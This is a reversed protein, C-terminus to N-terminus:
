SRGRSPASIRAVAFAMRTGRPRLKLRRRVRRGPVRGAPALRVNRSAKEGFPPSRRATDTGRLQLVKAPLPPVPVVRIEEDRDQRGGDKHRISRKGSVPRGVETHPSRKNRRTFKSSSADVWRQRREHHSHLYRSVAFGTTATAADDADDHRFDSGSLLTAEERRNRDKGM